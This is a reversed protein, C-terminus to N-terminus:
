AQDQGISICTPLGLNPTTYLEKIWSFAWEFDETKESSLFAQGIIFSSNTATVGMFNLLPINFKNTLCTCDLMLSYLYTRLFDICNSHFFLIREIRHQDDITYHFQYKEGEGFDRIM